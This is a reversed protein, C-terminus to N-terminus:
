VIKMKDELSRFLKEESLAPLDYVMADVGQEKAIDIPILSVSLDGNYFCLSLDTNVLMTRWSEEYVSRKIQMDLMNFSIYHSGKTVLYEISKKLKEPLRELPQFSYITLQMAKQDNNIFYKLVESEINRYCLIKIQHQQVYKELYAQIDRKDFETLQRSGSM